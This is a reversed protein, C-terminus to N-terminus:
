IKALLELISNKTDTGYIRKLEEVIEVLHATYLDINKKPNKKLNQINLNNEYYIKRKIIDDYHKLKILKDLATPQQIENKCLPKKDQQMFKKNALNDKPGLTLKRMDLANSKGHYQINIDDLIPKEETLLNNICNPALIINTYYTTKDDLSYIKFSSIGSFIDESGFELVIETLGNLDYKSIIIGRVHIETSLDSIQLTCIYYDVKIETNDSYVSLLLKYIDYTMEILLHNTNNTLQFYLINEFQCETANAILDSKSEQLKYTDFIVKESAM